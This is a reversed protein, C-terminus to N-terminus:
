EEIDDKYVFKLYDERLPAFVEIAVSDEIVDARHKVSSPISWSDGSLVERSSGGIFLRMEGSVLYGTQEHVHEHEPLQSGKRLLFESMLSDKGYVITKIRIGDILGTYGNESNIGFM